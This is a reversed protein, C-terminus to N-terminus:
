KNNRLLDAIIDSQAKHYFILPEFCSLTDFLTDFIAVPESFHPNEIPEVGVTEVNFIPRFVLIELLIM